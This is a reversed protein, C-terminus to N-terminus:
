VLVARFFHRQAVRDPFHACLDDALFQHIGIASPRHVALKKIVIHRQEMMQVQVVFRSGPHATQALGFRIIERRLQVVVQAFERHGIKAKVRVHFFFFHARAQFAKFVSVVANGFQGTRIANFQACAPISRGTHHMGRARYQCIFRLPVAIYVAYVFVHGAVFYVRNFRQIFVARFVFFVIQVIDHAQHIPIGIYVRM